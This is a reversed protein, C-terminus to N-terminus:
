VRFKMCLVEMSHLVEFFYTTANPDISCLSDQSKHSTVFSALRSTPLFQLLLIPNQLQNITLKHYYFANATAHDRQTLLTSGPLELLEWVIREEPFLAHVICLFSQVIWAPMMTGNLRWLSAAVACGVVFGVIVAFQLGVLPITWLHCCFCVLVVDSGHWCFSSPLVPSDRSSHHTHDPQEFTLFDPLGFPYETKSIIM